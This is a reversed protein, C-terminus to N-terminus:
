LHHEGRGPTGLMLSAAEDGIIQQKKGDWNIPRGIRYSINALICQTAIRHGAEINMIPTKGTQIAELWNEHQGSSVECQKEGSGPKYSKVEPDDVFTGGDGGRVVLKGKTGHYVAGFEHDAAKEGPQRWILKLDPDKYEIIVEMNQPCDYMGSPPPTGTATIRHPHRHDLDLVWSALNFVHAGRDRIQGGGFNIFWRFNFHVRDPNYPVWENPGLWMDWDLEAPAPGNKTFDGGTPNDKHWCVVESVRGIKDNNVWNWALRGGDTSRAQSGVQVVSGSRKAAAIMANGEDITESLPKECYVHKDAQCAQVTILGHWHDPAAIIVGDLDKQELLKRYDGYTPIKTGVIEAAKALRKQDVDCLAGSQFKKNGQIFNLHGTGMGGVGIHGILMRDNPGPRGPKALVGSPLIMPGVTAALATGVFQRRTLGAM